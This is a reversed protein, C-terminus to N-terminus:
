PAGRPNTLVVVLPMGLRGRAERLKRAGHHVQTRIPKHRVKGDWPGAGPLSNTSEAFEKVECLCCKGRVEVVYEPRARIGLDPEHEPVAIGHEALYREFM